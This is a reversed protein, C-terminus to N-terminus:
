DVLGRIAGPERASIRSGAIKAALSLLIGYFLSLMATAITDGVGELSEAMGFLMCIIGVVFGLGGAYLAGFKVGNIFKSLNFKFGCLLFGCAASLIVVTLFAMEDFFWSFDGRISIIILSTLLFLVFGVFGFILGGIPRNVATIRHGLEEPDGMRKITELAADEPEAGGAIFSDYREKMHDVLESRAAQRLEGGRIEACVRDLYDTM